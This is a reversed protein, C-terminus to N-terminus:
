IIMITLLVLLGISSPISANDLSLANNKYSLGRPRDLRIPYNNENYYGWGNHPGPAYPDNPNAGGMGRGVPGGYSSDAGPGMPGSFGPKRPSQKSADDLDENASPASNGVSKPMPHKDKPNSQFDSAENDKDPKSLPSSPPQPSPVRRIDPQGKDSGIVKPPSSSVAKPKSEKPSPLELDVLALGDKLSPNKSSKKPKLTVEQDDAAEANVTSVFAIAVLLLIIQNYLRM